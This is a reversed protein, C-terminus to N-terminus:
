LRTELPTSVVFNNSDLQRLLVTLVRGTNATGPLTLYTTRTRGELRRLTSSAFTNPGVTDSPSLSFTEKWCVWGEGELVSRQDKPAWALTTRTRVTQELVRNGAELLAQTEELNNGEALIGISHGTGLIRRVLDSNEELAQPTMLFLVYKGQGDLADLVAGLECGARCLFALYTRVSASSPDDEDPNPTVQPTTPTAPDPTPNLSQNYERLRRNILEGAADIFKVDSLVVADSKIRVLYGQSISNYSWELGFFGCVTNLPVYPRGNRMIAKASYHEGTMEDRCTGTKVNFVLIKSMNYMFALSGTDRNYSCYIGLDIGGNASGDFVTYPVYLQGGSWVPMTDSSLPLVTDNLATFYLDAASVPLTVLLALCLVAALLKPIRKRSKKM